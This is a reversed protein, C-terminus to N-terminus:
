QKVELIRNNYSDAIFMNGAADFEVGQPQNLGIALANAKDPCKQSEVLCETGGAVTTVINTTLDIARIADNYRDAVYLRGDPGFELDQPWNFHAARADGGDGDYGALADVNGICDVIMTNLDIKRIRHNGSDAFYLINNVQDMALAGAPIPTNSKDLGMTAMLAPGGDGLTTGAECGGILPNAANMYVCHGNGLITNITGDPLIVRIRVNRQDILYMSGDAGWAISKPQNFQALCAQGGDGAFGYFNGAYNKEINTDVDFTRLKNNHWAAIWLLGDPGFKVDTPHNLAVDTGLAGVPACVPLREAMQPDSDGEYTAGVVIDMSDDAEVRRIMHNNFDDIYARGDPGFTLDIPYYLQSDLRKANPNDGNYGRDGTGAWRCADGSKAGSCPDSNGNGACAALPVLLVCGLLKTM